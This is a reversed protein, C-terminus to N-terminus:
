LYTPRVWRCAKDANPTRGTTNEDMVRGACSVMRRTVDSSSKNRHVRGNLDDFPSCSNSCRGVRAGITHGVSPSLYHRVPDVNIGITYAIGAGKRRDSVVRM